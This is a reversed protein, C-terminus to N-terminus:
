LSSISTSVNADVTELTAEFNEIYARTVFGDHHRTRTVLVIGGPLVEAQLVQMPGAKSLMFLTIDEPVEEALRALGRVLWISGKELCLRDGEGSLLADTGLRISLEYPASAARRLENALQALQDRALREEAQEMPSTLLPVIIVILVVACAGMVTRSLVFEL